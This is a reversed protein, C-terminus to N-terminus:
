ASRGFVDAVSCAARLRGIEKAYLLAGLVCCLGGIFLMYPAGIAAAVSGALLSGFPAMGRFAVTYLSMVRGRKDEDAITQLVTNSAAMNSIMGAGTVFMLVTSLWIDRSFSFAVLGAGFIGSSWAILKGLGEANKRSALYVAAILAGVGVAAMLFGLTHPGGKLIDKAFIPMLITYPMGVLNILALLVIIARIPAFGFAYSLGEKLEQLVPEAKRRDKRPQIKMALLAVLVASFSIANILFCIGEGTAAILIGAISPGILRSANVMSSNLAIANSLDNKNEIMDLLFSQRVPMDFANIFGMFVSLLMIHWVTVVNVLVLIALVFAQIMALTQIIVMMRHRNWRDALVGAFPAILLSPLNGVFGVVGLLMASNTLRYVLWSMAILQMWTGILSVTQGMFFLRFNRYRLARFIGRLGSPISLGNVQAEDISSM